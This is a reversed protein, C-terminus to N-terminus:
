SPRYFCNAQVIPADPVIYGNGWVLRDQGCLSAPYVYSWILTTKGAGNPGVLAAVHGDPIALACKRLAWANGYRMGLGSAEIVNV